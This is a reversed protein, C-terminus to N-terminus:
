CIDLIEDIGISFLAKRPDDVIETYGSQHENFEQLQRMKWNVFEEVEEDMAELGEDSRMMLGEVKEWIAENSHAFPALLLEHFWLIGSKLSDSMLRALRNGDKETKSLPWRKARIDEEEALIKIFIDFCELYRASCSDGWPARTDWHMPRRIILWRPPSHLMQKPASYSWEWDLVATINFYEDVLMNGFRMGECRLIFPGADWAPDVLEPLLKRLRRLRRYKKRADEADTVSGPHVRLHEM